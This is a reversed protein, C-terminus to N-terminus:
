SAEPPTTKSRRVRTRAPPPSEIAQHVQESLADVQTEAAQGIDHWAREGDDLTTRMAELVIVTELPSFKKAHRLGAFLLGDFVSVQSQTSRLIAKQTEGFLQWNRDVLDGYRTLGDLWLALPFQLLSDLQGHGLTRWQRGAHQVGDRCVETSIECARQGASLCSATLALLNDLTQERSAAIEQPSLYM